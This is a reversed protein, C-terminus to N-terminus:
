AAKKLYTSTDILQDIERDVRDSVKRLSQPYPSPETANFFVISPVFSLTEQALADKAFPSNIFQRSKSAM